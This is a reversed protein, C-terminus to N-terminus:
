ICTGMQEAKDKESLKAWEEQSDESYLRAPSDTLRSFLSVYTTHKPTGEKDANGSDVTAALGAGETVATPEEVKNGRTNDAGQVQKGEVGKGKVVQRPASAKGKKVVAKKKKAQTNQKSEKQTPSERTASSKGQTQSTGSSRKRAIESRLALAQSPISPVHHLLTKKLDRKDDEDVLRMSQLLLDDENDTIINALAASDPPPSSDFDFISAGEMPHDRASTESNDAEDPGKGDGPSEMETDKQAIDTEESSTSNGGDDDHQIGGWEESDESEAVHQSTLPVQPARTHTNPRKVAKILKEQNKLLAGEGRSKKGTTHPGTIRGRLKEKLHERHPNSGSPGVRKLRKTNHKLNNDPDEARRKKLLNAKAEFKNTSSSQIAAKPKEAHVENQVAPTSSTSIPAHHTGAPLSAAYSSQLSPTPGPSPDRRVEQNRANDNGGQVNNVEGHNPSTTPEVDLVQVPGANSPLDFIPPIGDTYATKHSATPASTALPCPPPTLEIM